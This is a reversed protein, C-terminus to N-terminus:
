AHSALRYARILRQMVDSFRRLTKGSLSGTALTEVVVSNIIERDSEHCALVGDSIAQCINCADVLSLGVIAFAEQQEAPTKATFVRANFRDNREQRELERRRDREKQRELEERKWYNDWDPFVSEQRDLRWGDLRRSLRRALVGRDTDAMSILHNEIDGARAYWAPNVTTGGHSKLTAHSHAGLKGSGQIGIM